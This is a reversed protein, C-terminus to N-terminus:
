DGAADGDGPVTLRLAVGDQHQTADPDQGAM